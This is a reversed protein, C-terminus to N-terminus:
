ELPPRPRNKGRRREGVKERLPPMPARRQQDGCCVRSEEQEMAEAGEGMLGILFLGRACPFYNSLCVSAESPFNGSRCFTALKIEERETTTVTDLFGSRARNEPPLHLLARLM